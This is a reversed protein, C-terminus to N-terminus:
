VYFSVVFRIGGQNRKSFSPRRENTSKERQGERKKQRDRGKRGKRKEREFHILHMPTLQIAAAFQLKSM